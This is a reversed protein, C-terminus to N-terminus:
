ARIEILRQAIDRRGPVVLRRGFRHGLFEVRELGVARAGSNPLPPRAAGSVPGAVIRSRPTAARAPLPQIPKGSRAMMAPSVTASVPGDPTPLVVSNRSIAPSTAGSAPWIATAPRGSSSSVGIGPPRPEAPHRL